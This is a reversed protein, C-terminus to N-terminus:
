ILSISQKEAGKFPDPCLLETIHTIGVRRYSKSIGSEILVLAVHDAQLPSIIYEEEGDHDRKILAVELLTVESPLQDWLKDLNCTPLQTGILGPLNMDVFATSSGTNPELSVKRTRGRVVLTAIPTSVLPKSSWSLTSTFVEATPKPRTSKAEDFVQWFADFQISNSCSLWSWSPLKSTEASESRFRTIDSSWLLGEVIHNRWIGLFPEDRCLSEFCKTIGALAPLRDSEYTFRRSSYKEALRKWIQFAEDPTSSSLPMTLSRLTEPMGDLLGDESLMTSSCRWQIQKSDFQVYRRSLLKEQFTWGRSELRANSCRSHLSALRFCVQIPTPPNTDDDITTFGSSLVYPHFLGSQSNEGAAAGLVISARQFVEDMKAAENIWDSPDDQIICLADIWLYKIGLQRCVEISDIFTKPLDSILIVRMRDALTHKTTIVPVSSGWCYSLAAYSGQMGETASLRVQDFALEIDDLLLLRRPLPVVQPSM